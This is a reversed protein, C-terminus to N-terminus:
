LRSPQKREPVQVVKVEVQVVGSRLMDLNKAAHYSLDIIRDKIFPGRDNIYVVIKRSNELNTVEVLSFMPLTKHAATERYMDFVEGSSTRRGHFPEGYWSALGREIEDVEADRVWYRKKGVSYTAPTGPCDELPAIISRSEAQVAPRTDPQVDPTHACGSLIAM